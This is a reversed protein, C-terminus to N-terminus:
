RSLSLQCHLYPLLPWKVNCVTATMTASIYHSRSPRSAYRLLAWAELHPRGPSDTCRTGIEALPNHASALPGFWLAVMTTRRNPQVRCSCHKPWSSHTSQHTTVTMRVRTPMATRTTCRSHSCSTVGLISVTEVLPLRTNGSTLTNAPAVVKLCRHLTSHRAPFTTCMLVSGQHLRTLPLPMHGQSRQHSTHTACCTVM